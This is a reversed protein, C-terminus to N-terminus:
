VAVSEPAQTRTRDLATGLAILPKEVFRWSLWAVPTTLVVALVLEILIKLPLAIEASGLLRVGLLVGIMHYLYFSYSIRGYFRIISLDLFRFWAATMQYAVLM